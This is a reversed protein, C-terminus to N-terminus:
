FNFHRFDVIMHIHHLWDGSCLMHTCMFREFQSLCWKVQGSAPMSLDCQRMIRMVVEAQM